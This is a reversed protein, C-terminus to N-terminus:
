SGTNSLQYLSQKEPYYWTGYTSGLYYFFLKPGLFTPKLLPIEQPSIPLALSSIKKPNLILNKGTVFVTNNDPQSQIFINM